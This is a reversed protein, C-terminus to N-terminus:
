PPTCAITAVSSTNPRQIQHFIGEEDLFEGTPAESTPGAPIEIEKVRSEHVWWAPMLNWEQGICKAVYGRSERIGTAPWWRGGYEHDLRCTGYVTQMQAKNPQVGYYIWLARRAPTVPGHTGALRLLGAHVHSGFPHTQTAGGHIDVYMQAQGPRLGMARQTGLDPATLALSM